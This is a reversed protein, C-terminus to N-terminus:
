RLLFGQNLPDAPDLILRNVGCIYAQGEVYPVVADIEGLTLTRAVKAKFRTGILSEIVMGEGVDLEGRAHHIAMRGSVGSGTPSRDVEGDAFVCVNRSDASESLPNSIFITGYLFSLESNQPHIIKNSSTVVVNKIETGLQIIKAYNGETLSLNLQAADVYAYFAGGFALDYRVEKDLSPLYVQEDLAGVFSPVCEFSAIVEEGTVKAQVLILGCPAEIKLKALGERAEVWGMKVALTMIGIVAHGCMTSYGENHMFIVSCDAEKNFPPLLLCGYMDAHGRPEFMIAKRLDDFEDKLIRRYELLSGANIQPYGATIVRLPEGATHM